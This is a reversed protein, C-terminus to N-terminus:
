PESTTLEEDDPERTASDTTTPTPITTTTTTPADTTTSTTSAMLTTEDDTKTTNAEETQTQATGSDAETTTDTYIRPKTTTVEETTTEQQTEATTVTTVEEIEPAITCKESDSEVNFQLFVMESEDDDDSEELNQDDFIYSLTEGIDCYAVHEILIKILIDRIEENTYINLLGSVANELNEALRLDGILPSTAYDSSTHLLCACNSFQFKSNWYTATDIILSCRAIEKALLKNDTIDILENIPLFTTTGCDKGSLSTSIIILGNLHLLAYPPTEVGLATALMQSLYKFIEISKQSMPINNVGILENLLVEWNVANMKFTM